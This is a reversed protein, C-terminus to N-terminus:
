ELFNLNHIHVLNNIQWAKGLLCLEQNEVTAVSTTQRSIPSIVNLKQCAALPTLKVQLLFSSVLGEGRLNHSGCSPCLEM